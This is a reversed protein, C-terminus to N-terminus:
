RSPDSNASVATGAEPHINSLQDPSTLPLRFGLATVMFELLAIAAMKARIDVGVGVGVVVGVRVGVRVGVGVGVGVRVGGSNSPTPM